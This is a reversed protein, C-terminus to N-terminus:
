VWEFAELRSYGQEPGNGGSSAVQAPLEPSVEVAEAELLRGDIPNPSDRKRLHQRVISNYLM